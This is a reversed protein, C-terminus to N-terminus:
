RIPRAPTPCPTCRSAPLGPARGLIREIPAPTFNEGDVRIWDGSRGAFWFFGDADRYALDGTWYWGNRVRAADAEPNNYYGEFASM